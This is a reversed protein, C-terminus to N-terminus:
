VYDVNHYELAAKTVNEYNLIYRMNSVVGRRFQWSDNDPCEKDASETHNLKMQEIEARFLKWGPHSFLDNLIELEQLEQQTM